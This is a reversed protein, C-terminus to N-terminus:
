QSLPTRDNLNTGVAVLFREEEHEFEAQDERAATFILERLTDGVGLRRTEGSQRNRLWVEPGHRSEAVGTVVWQQYPYPPDPQPPSDATRVPEPEPEPPPPIRFPNQGVLAAFRALREEDYPEAPPPETPQDPLFLTVLRLTTNFREGNGRPDIRLQHVRKIWPETEIRDLLEVIQEFSGEGVVTAEIEVFDIKERLEGELGRRGFRRQAPTGRTAPNSTNISAGDLGVEETIRNLRSRLRHDVGEVDNGLTREVISALQSQQRPQRDLSRRYETIRSSLQEIRDLHEARPSFYMQNATSWLLWGVIIAGVAMLVLTRPNFRNM